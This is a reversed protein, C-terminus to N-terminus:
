WRSSGGSTSWRTVSHAKNLASGLTILADGRITAGSRVVEDLIMSLPLGARKPDLPRGSGARGCRARRRVCDVGVDEECRGPVNVVMTAARPEGQPHGQLRMGSGPVDGCLRLLSLARRAHHRVGGVRMLAVKALVEARAADLQEDAGRQSGSRPRPSTCDRLPATSRPLSHGSTRRGRAAVRDVM